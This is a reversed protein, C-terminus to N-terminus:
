SSPACNPPLSSTSPNQSATISHDASSATPGTRAHVPGLAGPACSGPPPAASPLSRDGGRRACAAARLGRGPPATSPPRKAASCPASGSAQPLRSACLGRVPHACHAKAVVGPAEFDTRRAFLAALAKARARTRLIRTTPQVRVIQQVVAAAALRTLESGRALDPASRPWRFGISSPSGHKKEHREGCIPSCARSKRERSSQQYRSSSGRSRRRVPAIM